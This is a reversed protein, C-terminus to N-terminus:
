EKGDLAKLEEFAKEAKAYLETYDTDTRARLLETMEYVPELVPTLSLNAAVGKLAHSCEFARDLDHADLAEKLGSFNKDQLFKRVLKIYFAENNMCRGLAEDVNAGYEKLTEATLM